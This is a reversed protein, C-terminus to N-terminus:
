LILCGTQPAYDALKVKKYANLGAPSWSWEAMQLGERLQNKKSERSRLKEMQLLLFTCLLSSTRLRKSDHIQISSQVKKGVVELLPYLLCAMSSCLPKVQFHSRHVNMAGAWGSSILRQLLAWSESHEWTPGPDPMCMLAQSQLSPEVHSDQSSSLPKAVGFANRLKELSCNGLRFFPWRLLVLRVEHPGQLIGQSDHM